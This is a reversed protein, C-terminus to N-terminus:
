DSPQPIRGSERECRAVWADVNDAMCNRYVLTTPEKSLVQRVLGIALVSLFEPESANVGVHATAIRLFITAKPTGRKLPHQILGRFGAQDDIRFAQFYHQIAGRWRCPGPRIPLM